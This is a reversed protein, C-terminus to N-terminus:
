DLQVAYSVVAREGPTASPASRGATATNDLVLYHQGAPVALTRTWVPGAAVPEDLIPPSPPPTTVAQTAYTGLWADGPARPLVLVDVQAAGQVAVFLTVRKGQPVEIPVFDRQGTQLESRDNLLVVKSRDLTPFALTTHLGPPIVGLGMEISGDPARIVTFGRAMQSSMIQTGFADTLKQGNPARTFASFFSIQSNEVSRTVFGTGSTARPRFYVYMTSGDLLFDTDYAVGTGAEFGVRQSMSTWVYGRGGLQLFLDGNPLERSACQLPVFRGIAPLDDRPRIPLSRAGVEACVNVKGYALLARRLSLNHADNIVGPMVGLAGQGCGALALSVLALSAYIRPIRPLMRQCAYVLFRAREAVIAIPM